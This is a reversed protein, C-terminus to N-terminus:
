KGSECLKKVIREVTKDSKIRNYGYSKVIILMKERSIGACEKVIDIRKEQKLREFYELFHKEAAKAKGAGGPNSKLGSEKIKRYQRIAKPLKKLFYAVKQNPTKTAWKAWFMENNDKAKSQKQFATLMTFLREINRLFKSESMIAGGYVGSKISKLDFNARQLKVLQSNDKTKKKTNM